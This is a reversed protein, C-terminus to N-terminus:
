ALEFKPFVVDLHRVMNVSHTTYVISITQAFYQTFITRKASTIESKIFFRGELHGGGGGGGRLFGSVAIKAIKLDLQLSFNELKNLIM